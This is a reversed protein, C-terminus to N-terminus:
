LLMCSASHVFGSTHMVVCDNDRLVAGCSTRLQSSTYHEWVVQETVPWTQSTVSESNACNIIYAFKSMCQMGWM